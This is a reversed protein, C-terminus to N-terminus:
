AETAVAGGSRLSQVIRMGVKTPNRDWLSVRPLQFMDSGSGISGWSTTLAAAFGAQRVLGVDRVGYDDGPRGNPYAFLSVAQGSVEKLFQRSEALQRVVENESELRLIPHDITHGGITMGARALMRVDDTRMMMDDPLSGGASQAIADALSQRQAIKRHKFSSLLQDILLRKDNDTAIPVPSDGLKELCIEKGRFRRVSEIVTDNWMMGGDLFGTAVFFTATLGLEVLIPLAVAVNNRYGDDFTIALTGASGTGSRVADLALNLPLIEFRNRLYLMLAAFEDATIEDPRLPDPESLVGHFTLVSLTRHGSIGAVLRSLAQWFLRQGPAVVSSNVAQSM